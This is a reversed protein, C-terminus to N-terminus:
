QHHHCPPNPKPSTGRTGPTKTAQRQPCQENSKTPAQHNFGTTPSPPARRHLNRSIRSEPSRWEKLHHLDSYSILTTRHIKLARLCWKMFFISDFHRWVGRFKRCLAIMGLPRPAMYLQVARPDRQPSLSRVYCIQASLRQVYRADHARRGQLFRHSANCAPIGCQIPCANELEGFCHIQLPFCRM